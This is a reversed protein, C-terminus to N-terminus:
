LSRPITWALRCGRIATMVEDIDERNKGDRDFAWESRVNGKDNNSRRRGIERDITNKQWKRLIETEARHISSQFRVSPYLPDDVVVLICFTFERSLSAPHLITSRFRRVFSKTGAFVPLHTRRKWLLGVTCARVFSLFLSRESSFSWGSMKTPEIKGLDNQWTSSRRDFISPFRTRSSPIRRRWPRM